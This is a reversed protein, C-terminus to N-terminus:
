PFLKNIKKDYHNWNCAVRQPKLSLRKKGCRKEILLPKDLNIYRGCYVCYYKYKINLKQVPKTM